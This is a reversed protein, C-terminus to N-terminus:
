IKSVSNQLSYRMIKCGIRRLLKLLKSITESYYKLVSCHRSIRFNSMEFGLSRTCVNIKQKISFQVIICRM